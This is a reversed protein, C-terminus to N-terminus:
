VFIVLSFASVWPACAAWVALGASLL